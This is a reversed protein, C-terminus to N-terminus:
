PFPGDARFQRGSGPCARTPRIPSMPMPTRLRVGRAVADNRHASLLRGPQQRQRRAYIGPSPMVRPLFRAWARPAPCMLRGPWRISLIATKSDGTSSRSLFRSSYRASKRSAASQPMGSRWTAQPANPADSRARVFATWRPRAAVSDVSLFFCMFAASDDSPAAASRAAAPRPTESGAVDADGLTVCRVFSSICFFTPQVSMEVSFMLLSGAVDM